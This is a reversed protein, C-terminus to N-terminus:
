LSRHKAVSHSETCILEANIHTSVCVGPRCHINAPATQTDARAQSSSTLHGPWLSWGINFIYYIYIYIYKRM